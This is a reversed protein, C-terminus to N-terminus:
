LIRSIESLNIWVASKPTAGMFVGQNQPVRYGNKFKGSPPIFTITPIQGLPNYLKSFDYSFPDEGASFMLPEGFKIYPDDDDRNERYIWLHGGTINDQFFDWDRVYKETGSM